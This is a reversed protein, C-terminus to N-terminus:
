REKEANIPKPEGLLFNFKVIICFNNLLQWFFEAFHSNIEMFNMKGPM